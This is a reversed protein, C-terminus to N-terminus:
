AYWWRIPVVVMALPCSFIEAQKEREIEDKEDQKNQKEQDSARKKEERKAKAHALLSSM